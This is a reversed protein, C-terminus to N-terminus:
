GHYYLDFTHIHKIALNYKLFVITTETRSSFEAGKEGFGFTRDSMTINNFFPFFFFFCLLTCVIEKEIKKKIGMIIEKLQSQVLNMKLM